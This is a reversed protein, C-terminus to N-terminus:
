SKPGGHTFTYILLWVAYIGGAIAGGFKAIRLMWQGVWAIGRGFKAIANMGARWALLMEHVDRTMEATALTQATNVSLLTEFTAMREGGDQLRQEIADLRDNRDTNVERETIAADDLQGRISDLDAVGIHEHTTM